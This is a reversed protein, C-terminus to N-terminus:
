VPLPAQAFIAVDRSLGVDEVITSWMMQSFSNWDKVLKENLSAIFYNNQFVLKDFFLFVELIGAFECNLSVFKIVRLKDPDDLASFGHKKAFKRVVWFIHSFLVFVDGFLGLPRRTAEPVLEIIYKWRPFAVIDTWAHNLYRRRLEWFRPRFNRPLEPLTVVNLIQPLLSGVLSRDDRPPHKLIIAAVDAMQRPRIQQAVLLMRCFRSFAANRFRAVSKQFRHVNQMVLRLRFFDELDLIRQQEETGVDTFWRPDFITDRRSSFILREVYTNRRRDINPFFDLLYPSFRGQQDDVEIAKFLAGRQEAGDFAKRFAAFDQHSLIVSESSM